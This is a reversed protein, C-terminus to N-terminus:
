PTVTIPVGPTQWCWSFRFQKNTTQQPETVTVDIGIATPTLWFTRVAVSQVIGDDILWQLAAKAYDRAQLLLQTEGSKIGRELLWLHSGIATTQFTDGWWGKRDQDLPQYSDPCRKDTFLSIAVASELDGIGSTTLLDGSAFGFDGQGQTNDWQIGIDM